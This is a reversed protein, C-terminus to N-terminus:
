LCILVESRLSQSLPQMNHESAPQIMDSTLEEGDDDLTIVVRSSCVNSSKGDSGHPTSFNATTTNTVQRQTTEGGGTESRRSANTSVGTASFPKGVTSAQQQDPSSSQLMTYVASFLPRATPDKHLCELATNMVASPLLTSSRMAQLIAQKDSNAQPNENQVIFYCVCGYSFVDAPLSYNRQEAVEPAMYSRTGAKASIDNGQILL